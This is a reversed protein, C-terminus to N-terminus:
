ISLKQLQGVFGAEDRLCRLDFILKGDSIRGIVPKPLSRFNAALTNLMADTQGKQAIPSIEVAISELLELPLAGSGIQSHCPGLEVVAQVQLVKDLELQVRGAVEEIEALPRTLDALLPLRTALRRPDKYLKIVELLAALTIKGVRLARKLPNNKLQEVLERKGVIIGAQPGGLLKDGSFTVLDTGMQLMERVTPEHPLNYQKLDVLTGSGLDAVFPINKKKALASLETEAVSKTFGRIEYNSTHVKMILGTNANVNSEYDRLHTRNTTGIERLISSASKMVDPIRFAGGIEVLEGRSILVEKDLAFTNLVLLVAAANNNVVTAAEAGSLDCLIQELHVDRDGRKGSNLDFELNTAETAAVGMAEVANAPLRARGLNTHVVTGTLNFVPILSSAFENNVRVEIALCIEYFLNESGLSKLTRDDARAINSRIKDLYSRTALKVSQQGVRAVLPALASCQLVRDVSPLLKFLSSSSNMNLAKFPGNSHRSIGKHAWDVYYRPGACYNGWIPALRVVSM